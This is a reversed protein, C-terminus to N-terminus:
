AGIELIRAQVFGSPELYVAMIMTDSMAAIDAYNTVINSNKIVCPPGYELASDKLGLMQIRPIQTGASSINAELVDLVAFSKASVRALTMLASTSTSRSVGFALGSSTVNGSIVSVTRTFLGNTTVASVLAETTSIAEIATGGAAQSAYPSCVPGYTAATGALQISMANVAAGLRYVVIAQTASLVAVSLNDTANAGVAAIAGNTLTTGSVNLTCASVQSTTGIFVVLAQTSSVTDISMFTSFVANVTLLAGATLTTGSVNLTYASLFGSAGQTVVVAQTASLATVAVSQPSSAASVALVAGASVSNGSINLTCAVMGTSVSWAAIAQTASMKTVSIRSSAVANITTATAQFLSQTLAKDDVHGVVWAGAATSVNALYLMATQGGDLQTLMKGGNSRVAFAISGANRVVFLEGGAPLTLASPLTVSKDLATMTISQVKFSASTLTIDVASSPESAGGAGVNLFTWSASVGPTATTVNALNTNLAWFNGNHAVSAPMNLAGTLASWNGKFNAAAVASVASAASNTASALSETANTFTAANALALEPIMNASIYTDFGIALADYTARNAKNPVAPAPTLTPPATPM